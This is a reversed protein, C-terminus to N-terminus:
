ILNTVSYLILELRTKKEEFNTPERIIQNLELASSLNEIAIGENSTNGEPWWTQSHANFDGTFFM